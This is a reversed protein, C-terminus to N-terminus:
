TYQWGKRALYDMVGAQKDSEVHVTTGGAMNLLMVHSDTAYLHQWDVSVLHDMNILYPHEDDEPSLNLLNM